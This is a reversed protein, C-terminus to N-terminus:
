TVFFSPFLIFVSVSGWIRADFQGPPPLARWDLPDPLHQLPLLKEQEKAGPDQEISRTDKLYPLALRTFALSPLM